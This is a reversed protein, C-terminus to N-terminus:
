GALSYPETLDPYNNRVNGVAPDVPYYDLIDNEAPELLARLEERDDNEPDLWIDWQDSELIVPMRSHVDRMLDNSETTIIACSDLSLPNADDRSQWHEWIGALALPEGDDRHIFYPHKRSGNARWEYFGSAPILCRRRRFADRFLNNEAVGESRANIPRPGSDLDKAWGPVFGWYFNALQRAGEEEIVAYIENSPAVNFNPGLDHGSPEIVGFLRLIEDFDPFAFRGCM